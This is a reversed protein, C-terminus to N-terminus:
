EEKTAESKKSKKKKKDTTPMADDETKKPKEKSYTYIERNQEDWKHEEIVVGKKYLTKHKPKQNPYYEEFWGDKKGKKYHEVTQIHGEYYLTKFEGDKIDMNWHETRLLVGDDYYYILEGNKKGEKYNLDQLLVSKQNYVKFPGDLIGAKYHIEKELINNRFYVKKVGDLLDYKFHELYITDGNRAFFIHLGHKDGMFFNMEWNLIHTTDYWFLWQGNRMGTVNERVVQLCGSEYFTSDVGHEKGNVFTVRHEIMGNNHCTECKGSFPLQDIGATYTNSNEDYSLKENCDVTGALKGCEWEAYKQGRRERSRKTCDDEVVKKTSLIDNQGWLLNPYSCVCIILSLFVPKLIHFHRM